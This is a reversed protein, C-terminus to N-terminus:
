ATVAVADAEELARSNTSLFVVPDDLHREISVPDWGTLVHVDRLTQTGTPDDDLVVAPWSAARRALDPLVDEPWARM